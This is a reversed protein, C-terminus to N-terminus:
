PRSGLEPFFSGGAHQAAVDGLLDRWMRYPDGFVDQGLELDAISAALRRIGDPITFANELYLLRVGVAERGMVEMGAAIEISDRRAFGVGCVGILCRDWEQRTSEEAFRRLGTVVSEYVAEGVATVVQDLDPKVRNMATSFIDASVPQGAVWGEALGRLTQMVALAAPVIAAPLTQPIMMEAGKVSQALLAADFEASKRDRSRVLRAVTAQAAIVAHMLGKVDRLWAPPAYSRVPVGFEVRWIEGTGILTLGALPTSPMLEDRNKRYLDRFTMNLRDAPTAPEQAGGPAGNAVEPDLAAAAAVVGGANLVFMRRDMQSMM